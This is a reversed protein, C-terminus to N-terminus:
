SSAMGSIRLYTRLYREVMRDLEFEREVRSRGQEGFAARREPHAALSACAAAVAQPDRPPVLTGTEGDIVVEPTGGVGTAVLPLGAAMAELLTLSIGESESTNVFVDFGPLLQRVDSRHGTMHVCDDLKLRAVLEELARREPGDGVIALRAHPMSQRLLSLAELATGLDKVPDLRAVTGMLFAEDPVGLSRRARTRDEARPRTGVDIGNRNVLVRGASCGSAVLYDRLEDSVAFLADPVRSLLPNVLRRRRSPPAASLRGHETVVLKFPPNLLAAMSGYVFPSYQHCHVVDAGFRRAERALRYAISPRIGPKRHLATVPIGEAAAEAAWAGPEDLCCIFSMASPQIRRAIELVLRETGGPDLSLVVQMVRLRPELPSSTPRREIPTGSESWTVDRRV